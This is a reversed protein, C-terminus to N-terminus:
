PSLIRSRFPMISNIKRGSTRSWYMMESLASATKVCQEFFIWLTKASCTSYVYVCQTNILKLPWRMAHWNGLRVSEFQIRAAVSPFSFVLHKCISLPLAFWVFVQHRFVSGYSLLRLIILWIMEVCIVTWKKGSTWSRLFFATQWYTLRSADDYPAIFILLNAYTM